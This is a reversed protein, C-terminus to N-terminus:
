TREEATRENIVASQHRRGPPYPDLVLDVGLAGIQALVEHSFVASRSSGSGPSYSLWIEVNAREVLAALAIMRDALREMLIYLHDEIPSSPELGGELMWVTFSPDGESDRTSTPRLGLLESIAEAGLTDSVIRLSALAWGREGMLEDHDM